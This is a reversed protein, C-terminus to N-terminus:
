RHLQAFEAPDEGPLIITAAYGGHKLASHTKNIRIRTDTSM